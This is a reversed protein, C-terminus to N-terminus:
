HTDQSHHELMENYIGALTDPLNHWGNPWHDSVDGKGPRILGEEILMTRMAWKVGRITIASLAIMSLVVTLAVNAFDM